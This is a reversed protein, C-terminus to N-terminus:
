WVSLPPRDSVLRFVTVSKKSRRWRRKAMTMQALLVQDDDASGIRDSGHWVTITNLRFGKRWPVVHTHTSPVWTTPSTCRFFHEEPLPGEAPFNTTNQRERVKHMTHAFHVGSVDDKDFIKISLHGREMSRGKHSVCCCRPFFIDFPDCVARLYLKEFLTVSALLKSYNVM